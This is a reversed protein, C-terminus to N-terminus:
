SENGFRKNYQPILEVLLSTFVSFSPRKSGLFDRDDDRYKEWFLMQLKLLMECGYTKHAAAANVYDKDKKLDPYPFGFKSEYKKAFVSVQYGHGKCNDSCYYATSKKKSVSRPSPETKKSGDKLGKNKEKNKINKNTTPQQNTAPQNNTLQQNTQQNTQHNTLLINDSYTDLNVLTSSGNKITPKNTLKNTSKITPQQNTAPQNSTAQQNTQHNTEYYNIDYIDSNILKAIVGKNTTKITILKYEKLRKLATRYQQRSLGIFGCDGILAEGAKLNHINFGNIRKARYAILTLLMFCNPDKLLEETEKSRKLKIWSNAV